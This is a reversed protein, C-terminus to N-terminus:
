PAPMRYGLGRENLIWAARSGDEGLKRRLTKVVAHVLKPKVTGDHTSWAQRLLSRYTTVRGANRSLV